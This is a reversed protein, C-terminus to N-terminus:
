MDEDDVDDPNCEVNKDHQKGCRMCVGMRELVNDIENLFDVICGYGILTRGMGDWRLSSRVARILVCLLEPLSGTQEITRHRDERRTITQQAHDTLDNLVVCLRTADWESPVKLWKEWEDSGVERVVNGHLGHYHTEWRPLKM